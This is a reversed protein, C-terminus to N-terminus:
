LIEKANNQEPSVSGREVMSGKWQHSIDLRSNRGTRTEDPAKCSDLPTEVAEMPYVATEATDLWGIRRPHNESGDFSLISDMGTSHSDPNRDGIKQVVRSYSKFWSM